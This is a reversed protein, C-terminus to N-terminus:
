SSECDLWLAVARPANSDAKGTVSEESCAEVDCRVGRYLQVYLLAPSEPYGGM